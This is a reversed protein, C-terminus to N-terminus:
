GAQTRYHRVLDAPYHPHETVAADDIQWLMAVLAAEFCWYGFYAGEAGKHNDHWYIPKMKKYWGEVYKHLKAPRQEVPAAIVELLPGYIKPFKSHPALSRTKDGFGHAIYDLLADEGAHGIWHFVTLIEQTSFRLAVIFALLALTEYLNGLDLREYMQRIKPDVEVTTVTDHKLKLMNIMQMVSERMSSLADGRSYRYAIIHFSYTWLRSCRRLKADVSLQNFKGKDILEPLSNIYFEIYQSFYNEDQHTDRVM